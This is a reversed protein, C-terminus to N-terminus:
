LGQNVLYIPYYVTGTGVDVHNHQDKILGVVRRCLGTSFSSVIPPVRYGTSSCKGYSKFCPNKKYISLGGDSEYFFFFSLEQFVRTWDEAPSLVPFILAFGSFNLQM